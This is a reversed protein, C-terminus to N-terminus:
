SRNGKSGKTAENGSCKLYFDLDAPAPHCLPYHCPQKKAGKGVGGQGWRQLSGERRYESELLEGWGRGLKAKGKARGRQERKWSGAFAQYMNNGDHSVNEKGVRELGKSSQTRIVRHM